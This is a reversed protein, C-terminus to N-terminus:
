ESFRTKECKTLAIFLLIISFKRAKRRRRKSSVIPFITGLIQGFLKPVKSFSRAGPGAGYVKLDLRYGSFSRM